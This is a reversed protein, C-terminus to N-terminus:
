YHCTDVYERLREQPVPVFSGNLFGQLSDINDEGLIFYRSPDYLEFDKIGKNNTICKVRDFVTELERQTVSVQGEPVINLHARTEKLLEIYDLYDMEPMYYDKKNKQYSRDACIHFYTKLGMREFTEKYSLLMEARGKDRGLYIIDYKPMKKEKDSFSYKEFYAPHTLRMGYLDCDTKDYSVYELNNAAVTNPKITARSVRNSYIVKIEKEPHIKCVWAVFEPIILPDRIYILQESMEKIKSNFWIRKLPLNLRFWAERLVRLFLNHDKYPIMVNIGLDVYADYVYDRKARAKIMCINSM